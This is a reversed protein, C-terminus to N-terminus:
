ANASFDAIQRWHGHMRVVASSLAKQYDALMLPAHPRVVIVLDYGLPLDFQMLRAAERLRRRIRNRQVAIGVKRSVSMGLRLHGLSNPLSFVTIPGRSQRVRAHYVADFEAPKRLHHSKPYTLRM